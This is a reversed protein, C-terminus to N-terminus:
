AVLIFSVLLILVRVFSASSSMGGKRHVSPFHRRHIFTLGSWVGAEMKAKSKGGELLVSFFNRNNM